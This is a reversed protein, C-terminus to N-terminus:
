SIFIDINLNSFNFLGLDIDDDHEIIKKDRISGLLTGATAWYQINHKNFVKITKELNDMLIKHVHNYEDATFNEINKTNYYVFGLVICLFLM